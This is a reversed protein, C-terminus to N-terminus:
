AYLIIYKAYIMIYIISRQRHSYKLDEFECFEFEFVGLVVLAVGVPFVVFATSLVVFVCLVAFEVVCFLLVLLTYLELLVIM